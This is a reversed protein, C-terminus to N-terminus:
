RCFPPLDQEALTTPNNASSVTGGAVPKAYGCLYTIIPADVPGLLEPRFALVGRNADHRASTGYIHAASLNATILGHAGLRMRTVYNGTANGSTVGPDDARPWDGHVARHIIADIEAGSALTVADLTQVMRVSHIAFAGAVAIAVAIILGVFGRELADPGRVERTRGITVRHLPHLHTRPM